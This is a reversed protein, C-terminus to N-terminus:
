GTASLAEGEEVPWIDVVESELFTAIALKNKPSPEINTNEIRALTSKPVNIEEALAALSLGRNMRETKLDIM